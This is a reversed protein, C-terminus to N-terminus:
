TLWHTKQGTLTVMSVPAVLSVVNIDQITSGSLNSVFAEKRAKYSAEMDPFASSFSLAFYPLLHQRGAM